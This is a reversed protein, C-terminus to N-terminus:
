GRRRLKQHNEQTRKARKVVIGQQKWGRCRGQIDFLGIVGENAQMPSGGLGLLEM